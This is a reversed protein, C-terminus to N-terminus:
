NPTVLFPFTTMSPTSDTASPVGDGFPAGGFGSVIATLTVDIADVTPTRGGCDDISAGAKKRELALYTTCTGKRTDLYLRDDLFMSALADYRQAGAAGLLFANGCVGDLGDFGKLNKVFIPSFSPLAAPDTTVNYSEQASAQADSKTGVPVNDTPSALAWSVLARGARDIQVTGLPPMPPPGADPPDVKADSGGADDPAASDSTTVGGDSSPTASPTDDSSCAALEVVGFVVVLMWALGRATM